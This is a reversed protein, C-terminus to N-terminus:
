EHRLGPGRASLLTNERRASFYLRWELGRWDTPLYYRIVWNGKKFLNLIREHGKEAQEKTEYRVQYGSNIEHGERLELFVMTEFWLSKDPHWEHDLELFVTSFRISSVHPKCYRGQSLKNVLWHFATIHHVLVDLTVLHWRDEHFVYGCGCVATSVYSEAPDSDDAVAKVRGLAMYEKTTYTEGCSGCKWRPMELALGRM